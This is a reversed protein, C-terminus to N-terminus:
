SFLENENKLEHLVEKLLPELKVIRENVTKWVIELDIGFYFHILKDRMGAMDKWPVAPYKKRISSPIQKTAEGIIELERIVASTTKRDKKFRNFTMGQTFERVNEIAQLIDKIYVGYDRKM